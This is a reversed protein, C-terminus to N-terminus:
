PLGAERLIEECARGARQFAPDDKAGAPVEIATGGGEDSLRPDPVDQGHERMCRAYRVGSEVARRRDADSLKPAADAIARRERECKAEAARMQEESIGATRPDFEFGGERNPGPMDVGHRRLCRAFQAQADILAQGGVASLGGVDPGGAGTDRDERAGACGAGASAVLAILLGLKADRVARPPTM